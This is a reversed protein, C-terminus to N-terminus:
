SRRVKESRFAIEIKGSSRTYRYIQNSLRDEESVESQNIEIVMASLEEYSVAEKVPILLM